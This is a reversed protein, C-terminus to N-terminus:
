PVPITAKIVVCVMSKKGIMKISAETVEAKKIAADIKSKYAKDTMAEKYKEEISLQLNIRADAIAANRAKARAANKDRTKTVPPVESKGKATINEINVDILQNNVPTPEPTDVATKPATLETTPANIEVDAEFSYKATYVRKNEDWDSSLLVAKRRVADVTIGTNPCTTKIAALLKSYASDSAKQKATDVGTGIPKRSLAIEGTEQLVLHKMASVPQKLDSSNATTSLDVPLVTHAFMNDAAQQSIEVLVDAILTDDAVGQASSPPTPSHPQTEEGNVIIQETKYKSSRSDECNLASTFALKCENKDPGAGLDYICLEGTVKVNQISDIIVAYEMERSKRSDEYKQNDKEWQALDKEYNPMDVEEWNRLDRVYNPDNARSGNKLDYRYGEFKPKEDPNPKKPQEPKTEKFAPLRQTQCVPENAVYSTNTNIASVSVIALMTDNGLKSRFAAADKPNQDLKPSTLLGQLDQRNICRFGGASTLQTTLKAGLEDVMKGCNRLDALPHKHIEEPISNFSQHELLASSIQRNSPGAICYVNRGAQNERQLALEIAAQGNQMWTQIAKPLALLIKEQKASAAEQNLIFLLDINAHEEPLWQDPKYIKWDITDEGPKCQKSIWDQAIDGNETSIVCIRKIRYRDLISGRDELEMKAPDSKILRDMEFKLWKANPASILIDWGNRRDTAKVVYLFAEEPDVPNVTVPLVGAESGTFSTAKERDIIFILGEDKGTKKRIEASENISVVSKEKINMSSLFKSVDTRDETTVVTVKHEKLIRDLTIKGANATQTCIISLAAVIMLKFCSQKITVLM